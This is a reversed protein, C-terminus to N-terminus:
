LQWADTSAEPATGEREELIMYSRTSAVGPMSHIRRLITESLADHDPASVTLLIDIDGALAQAKEVFPLAALSESVTPWDADVKVIVIATIGLGLAERDVNASFGTIIRHELLRSLRTHAATRSIHVREALTRISLRADKGLEAIIRRDIADVRYRGGTPKEPVRM